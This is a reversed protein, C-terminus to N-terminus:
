VTMYCNYLEEDLSCFFILHLWLRAVSCHEWIIILHLFKFSQLNPCYNCQCPCSTENKLGCNQSLFNYSLVCSLRYPELRGVTAMTTNHFLSVLFLVFFRLIKKNSRWVMSKTYSHAISKEDRPINFCHISTSHWYM